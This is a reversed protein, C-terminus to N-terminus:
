RENMTRALLNLECGKMTWSRGAVTAEDIRAVEKTLHASGLKRDVMVRGHEVSDRDKLRNLHVTRVSEFLSDVKVTNKKGNTNM